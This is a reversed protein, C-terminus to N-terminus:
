LSDKKIIDLKLNIIGYGLSIEKFNAVEISSTDIYLSGSDYVVLNKIDENINIWKEIIKDININLNMIKVNNISLKIDDGELEPILTFQAPIKIFGLLTYKASLDIGESSVNLYLDDIGKVDSTSISDNLLQYLLSEPVSVNVPIKGDKLNNDFDIDMDGQTLTSNVSSNLSNVSNKGVACGLCFVLLLVLISVLIFIVKNKHLKLYNIFEM